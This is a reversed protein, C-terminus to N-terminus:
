SVAVVSLRIYAIERHRVFKICDDVSIAALFDIMVARNRCITRQACPQGAYCPRQRWRKSEGGSVVPSTAARAASWGRPRKATASWGVGVKGADCLYNEEISSRTQRADIWSANMSSLRCRSDSVHLHAVDLCPTRFLFLFFFMLDNLRPWHEHNPRLCLVTLSGTPHGRGLLIPLIFRDVSISSRIM